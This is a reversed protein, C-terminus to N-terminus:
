GADRDTFFVLEPDGADLGDLQGSFRWGEAALLTRMPSNSENTSVFVRSSTAARVAERLLSTAIGRRRAQHSVILHDVFDRGFFHGPRVVVLGVIGGERAIFSQSDPLVEALYSDRWPNALNVTGLIEAISADDVSRIETM